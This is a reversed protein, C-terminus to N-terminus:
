LPERTDSIDVLDDLIDGLRETLLSIHGEDELLRPKSTPIHSHLWEGHAFPVMRDHRGQWIAVPTEISGLDFGWPKSFALDDDIWGELGDAAARRISRAFVDALEGTLAKRDVDSVLGRLAAAIDEGTVASYHDLEAALFPELAEEGQLATTFEEVNENAMGMMWDGGFLDFPAVSGLTATGVCQNPLLAACALAHPGGGSHGLTVFVDAEAHEMVSSADAAADTVSRGHHRTSGSYGPRAYSLLTLGREKAARDLSAWYVPPAPTGPQFLLALGDAAGGLWGHLRRDGVRVLLDPSGTM